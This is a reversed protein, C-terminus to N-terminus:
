LGKALEFIAETNSLDHIRAYLNIVDLPKYTCGAYCGAIQHETDLWMSPAHDDHLPCLTLYYHNGTKTLSGAPFLDEIRYHQKIAAVTGAGSVGPNMVRDWIDGTQTPRPAATKPQYEPQLLMEAPLIDSLANIFFPAGTNVARYISGSPHVSPPILVYGGRSKIDVHWPDGNDRTLPRSKTAQPLRIYVHIGRATQVRYTLRSVLRALPNKEAYSLWEDYVQTTDFDIVTLGNHGTVLAINYQTGHGFWNELQQTSPIQTQYDAWKIEPRKDRFVIPIVTRWKRATQLLETMM